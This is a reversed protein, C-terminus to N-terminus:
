KNKLVNVFTVEVTEGSKVILNKSDEKPEYKSNTEIQKLIYEGEPVKYFTIIGDDGTTVDGYVKGTTDSLEFKCSAIPNGEEDICNLKIKGLTTGYSIIASLERDATNTEKDLSLYDQKQGAYIKGVNREVSSSFKISVNAAKRKIKMYVKDGSALITKENGNEDSISADEPAENLTAKIYNIDEKDINEINVKYPGIYDHESDFDFNVLDAESNDIVMTPVVNYPENEAYAVLKKAANVTREYMEENGNTSTVNDVRFILPAKTSEGTRNAVEWLAMQTAIYAEDENLCGMEKPTKKPYGNMLIAMGQDSLYQRFTVKNETDQECAYDMSYSIKNNITVFDFGIEKDNGSDYFVSNRILEKYTVQAIETEKEEKNNKTIIFYAGVAIIAVLIFVIILAISIKKINKFKVNAKM